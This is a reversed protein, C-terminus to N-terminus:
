TTPWASSGAKEKLLLSRAEVEPHAAGSDSLYEVRAVLYPFGGVRDIVRFRREGQCVLHHTGDPATIYRLISAATGVRYLDDFGPEDTGPDKQLLFGVKSDTRVAEQAGAVTQERKIAVPLVVGPFLVMNRVPLIILMDEPLGPAERREEATNTAQEENTSM